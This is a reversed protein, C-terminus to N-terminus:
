YSKRPDIKKCSTCQMVKLKIKDYDEVTNYVHILCSILCFMKEVTCISVLCLRFCKQIYEIQKRQKNFNNTYICPQM